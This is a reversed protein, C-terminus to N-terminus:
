ALGKAHDGKALTQFHLASNEQLHWSSYALAGTQVIPSSFYLSRSWCQGLDPYGLVQLASVLFHYAGYSIDGVSNTLKVGMSVKLALHVSSAACVFM